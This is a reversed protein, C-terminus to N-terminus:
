SSTELASAFEKWGRKFVKDDQAGNAGGITWEFKSRYGKEIGAGVGRYGKTPELSSDRIRQAADMSQQKSKFLYGHIM